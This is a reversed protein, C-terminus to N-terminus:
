NNTSFEQIKQRWFSNAEDKQVGLVQRMANYIGEDNSTQKLFNEVAQTGGKEEAAKILVASSVYYTQSSIRQGTM